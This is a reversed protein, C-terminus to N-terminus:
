HTFRVVLWGLLVATTLLGFTNRLWRLVARGVEAYYRRPEDREAADIRLIAM